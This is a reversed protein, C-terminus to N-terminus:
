EYNLSNDNSVQIVADHMEMGKDSKAMVEWMLKTYNLNRM